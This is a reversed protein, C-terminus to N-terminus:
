VFPVGHDGNGIEVAVFSRRALKRGEVLEEAMEVFRGVETGIETKGIGGVEEDALSIVM